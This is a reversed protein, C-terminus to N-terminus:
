AAEQGLSQEPDQWLIWVAGSEDEQVLAKWPLILGDGREAGCAAGVFVLLRGKRGGETWAPTNVCIAAGEAELAEALRSATEEVSLSSRLRRRPDRAEVPTRVLGLSVLRAPFSSAYPM